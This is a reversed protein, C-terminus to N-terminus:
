KGARNKGGSSAKGPSKHTERAVGPTNQPGRGKAGTGNDGGNSSQLKGKQAADVIRVLKDLLSRQNGPADIRAIMTQLAGLFGVNRSARKEKRRKAKSSQATGVAAAASAQNGESARSRGGAFQRLLSQLGELLLKEQQKKSRTDKGGGGRLQSGLGQDFRVDNNSARREAARPGKGGASSLLQAHRPIAAQRGYGRNLSGSHSLSDPIHRPRSSAARNTAFLLHLFRSCILVNHALRSLSFLLGRKGRRRKRLRKRGDPVKMDGIRMASFVTGTSVFLLHLCRLCILVYHIFRSFSFLLGRKGRRRKWLRKRGDPVRMGGIRMASFVTGSRTNFGRRYYTSDSRNTGNASVRCGRINTCVRCFLGVCLLSIWFIILATWGRMPMYNTDSFAVGCCRLYFGELITTYGSVGSLERSTSSAIWPLLMGIVWRLNPCRTMCTAAAIRRGCCSAYSTGIWRTGFEPASAAAM